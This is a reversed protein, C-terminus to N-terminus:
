ALGRFTLKRLTEDQGVMVLSHGTWCYSHPDSGIYGTPIWSIRRSRHLVWERTEDVCHHIEQPRGDSPLKRRRTILIDTGSLSVEHPICHADYHIFFRDESEFTIRLANKLRPRTKNQVLIRGEQTDWVCVHVWYDLEDYTVLRTGGPSIESIQPMGEVDASWKPFEDDFRWLRLCRKQGEKFCYIAMRYELSACLVITLDAPILLRSDPPPITFLPSMTTAELFVVSDHSTPLVAIIKGGDLARVALASITTQQPPPNGDELSLLQIGSGAVSAVMTGNPLSSIFSMSGPYEFYRWRWTLANFLQLGHAEMGCVLEKTTRSFTFCSFRRQVGYPASSAGTQPDIITITSELESSAMIALQNLKKSYAAGCVPDSMTFSHLVIGSVVDWIYVSAKTAIVFQEEPDLGCIHTVPSGSKIAACKTRNEVEWVGVSGDALGCALYHGNLSVAIDGANQELDFTHVLGGTQIDWLTISPKQHMCFLVSGDPSGRLAQISNAPKLSLRLVGTVTDYIGVTGDDCAAAIRHGFTTVYTFNGSDGKITRVVVGWSAPCGYFEIIRTKEQSILSRFMSSKSSLPLASHYIHSASQQILHFFHMTFRLCDQARNSLDSTSVESVQKQFILSESKRSLRSQSCM